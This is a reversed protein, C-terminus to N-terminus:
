SRVLLQYHCYVTVVRGGSIEVNCGTLPGGSIPHTKPCGYEECSGTTKARPETSEGTEAGGPSPVFHEKFFKKWEEPPITGHIIHQHHKSDESM